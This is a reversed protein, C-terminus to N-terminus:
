KRRKYNNRGGRKNSGGSNSSSRKNRRKPTSLYDIKTHEDIKLEGDSLSLIDGKIIEDSVYHERNWTKYALKMYSAITNVFGQKKTETPMTRAKKILQQINHGYHRYKAENVPYPVIEPRRNVEERTAKHGSPPDVDLEFNAIFFVHKWLREQYDEINGHQPHMQQMLRVIREVFKQRYEKDEITKAHKILKQVNRGYEPIILEERSSNYEMGRDITDSM